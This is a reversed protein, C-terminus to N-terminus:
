VNIISYILSHQNVALVIQLHHKVHIAPHIVTKALTILKWINELFVHHVNIVLVEAVIIVLQIVHKM